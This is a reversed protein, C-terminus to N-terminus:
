DAGVTDVFVQRPARELFVIMPQKLVRPCEGMATGTLHLTKGDWRVAIESADTAEVSEARVLFPMLDRRPDNVTARGGLFAHVQKNTLRVFSGKALMAVARPRNRSVLWFRSPELQPHDWDNPGSKNWSYDANSKPVGECAAVWPNVSQAIAPSSVFSLGLLGNGLLSRM